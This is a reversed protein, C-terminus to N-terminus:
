AARGAAPALLIPRGTMAPHDLLAILFLSRGPLVDVM